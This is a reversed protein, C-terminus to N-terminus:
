RSRSGSVSTSWFISVIRVIVRIKLKVRFM